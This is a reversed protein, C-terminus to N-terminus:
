VAGVVHSSNVTVLYGDPDRVTFSSHFPRTAIPSTQLGRGTWAGHTGELDDVMLDFPADSEPPPGGPVLLLHTGGRLEFVAINEDREVERLGLDAWFDASRGVDGVTLRVHGVWIPPRQDM